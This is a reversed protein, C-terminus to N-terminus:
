QAVDKKLRDAAMQALQFAKAVHEEIRDVIFTHWERRVEEMEGEAQALLDEAETVDLGEAGRIQTLEEMAQLYAAVQFSMILVYRAKIPEVPKIGLRENHCASCTRELEAPTLVSIAMSGHCTVCNPGRGEEELQDYHVSAKFRSFEETHCRGCTAPINKFYVRSEQNRSSLVGVHALAKQGATPDGGHCAECTVDRAAHVSIEWDRFSHGALTGEPIQRHCAVCTNGVAAVVTPLGSPGRLSEEPARYLGFFLGMGLGVGLFTLVIALWGGKLRM